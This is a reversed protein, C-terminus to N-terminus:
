VAEVRNRYSYSNRRRQARAAYYMGGLLSLGIAGILWERIRLNPFSSASPSEGADDRRPDPYERPTYFLSWVNTASCHYLQGDNGAVNKNWDAEDTKWYAEDVTCTAPLSTGTQVGSNCSLGASTGDYTNDCYFERDVNIADEIDGQTNVNMQINSGNGWEYVPRTVQDWAGIETPNSLTNGHSWQTNDHSIGVQDRCRWGNENTVAQDVGAPSSGTHTCGPTDGTRCCENLWGFGGPEDYEKRDITLNIVQGSDGDNDFIFGSGGRMEFFDGGTGVYNNYVEAQQCGRNVETQPGHLEFTWIGADAATNFRAVYRCGYNGDLTNTASNVIYNDEFIMQEAANADADGYNPEKAWIEHQTQGDGDDLQDNTGNVHFAFWEVRNRAILITPHVGNGAGWFRNPQWGSTSGEFRNNQLLIYKGSAANGDYTIVNDASSVMHFGLIKHTAAFNIQFCGSNCTIKTGTGTYTLTYNSAGPTGVVTMPDDGGNGKITLDKAAPLAIASTWTQTGDPVIITDGSSADTVCNNVEARTADAATWTPSSGGCAAWVNPTFILLLLPWRM